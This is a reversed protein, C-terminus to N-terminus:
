NEKSLTLEVRDGVRFEKDSIFYFMQNDAKNESKFNCQVSYLLQNNDGASQINSIIMDNEKVSYKCGCFLVLLLLYRM